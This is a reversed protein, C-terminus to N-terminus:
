LIKSLGIRRIADSSVAQFFEAEFDINAIYAALGNVFFREYRFRLRKVFGSLSLVNPWVFGMRPPSFPKLGSTLKKPYAFGLLFNHFQMEKRNDQNSRSLVVPPPIRLDKIIKQDQEKGIPDSLVNVFLEIPIIPNMTSVYQNVQKSLGPIQQTSYNVGITIELNRPNFQVEMEETINGKPDLNEIIVRQPPTSFSSM